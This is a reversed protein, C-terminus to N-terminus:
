AVHFRSSNYKLFHRLEAPTAAESFNKVTTDSGSFIIVTNLGAEHPQLNTTRM